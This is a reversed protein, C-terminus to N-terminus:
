LRATVQVAVRLGNDGQAHVASSSGDVVESQVITRAPPNEKDIWRGWAKDVGELDEEVSQVCVLASVVKSPSSGAEELLNRVRQLADTAQEEAGGFNAIGNAKSPPSATQGSVFVLGGSVVAESRVSGKRLHKVAPPVPAVLRATEAAALDAAKQLAEQIESDTLSKEKLFAMQKEQPAGKVKPHRLFVVARKVMEPRIAAATSSM